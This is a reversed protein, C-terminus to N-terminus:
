LTDEIALSYRIGWFMIVGLVAFIYRLNLGFAFFLAAVAPGVIYSWPRITRFLSIVNADADQVKKFFYTESMIEVMAAGIRSLFLLSMWLAFDRVTIFAAAASTLAMIVFGISLIEKEGFRTDALRGLPAETLVFPLLMAGFMPGLEGWSFGIHDHLYIPMYIVMWAYFFNLLFSAAAIHSINKDRRVRDLTEMLPAERYKPDDFRALSQSLLYAVPLVLAAAALFLEGYRNDGLILSGLLPSVIWALNISTMFAGRTRGTSADRSFHELFIDFNFGILAGTVFFGIFALGILWFSGSVGLALLSLFEISLLAITTRYNGARRLIKPMFAFIGIAAASAAAYLLGVMKEGIFHALFTSSAYAPLTAELTFLFGLLCVLFTNSRSRAVPGEANM